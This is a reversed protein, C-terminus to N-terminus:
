QSASGLQYQDVARFGGAGDPALIGLKLGAFILITRRSVASLDPSPGFRLLVHGAITNLTRSRLSPMRRDIGHEVVFRRQADARAALVRPDATM